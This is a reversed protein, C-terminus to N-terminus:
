SLLSISIRLFKSFRTFCLCADSDKCEAQQVVLLLITRREYKDLNFPVLYDVIFKSFATNQTMISLANIGLEQASFSANCNQLKLSDLNHCLSVQTEAWHYLQEQLSTIFSHTRFRYPGSPIGAGM